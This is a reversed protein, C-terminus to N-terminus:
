GNELADLESDYESEERPRGVARPNPVRTTSCHKHAALKWAARPTDATALEVAFPTPGGRCTRTWVTWGDLSECCGADPFVRLVRRKNTMQAGM